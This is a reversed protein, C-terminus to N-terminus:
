RWSACRARAPEPRAGPPSHPVVDVIAATLPRIRRRPAHRTGRIRLTSDANPLTCRSRDRATMSCGATSMSTCSPVPLALIVDIYSTSGVATGDDNRVIAFPLRTGAEQDNLADRILAEIDSASRPTPEDLYTWIEDYAAAALLQGTHSFSLPELRIRKGTLTVPQLNM